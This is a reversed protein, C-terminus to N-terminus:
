QYTLVTYCPTGLVSDEIKCAAIGPADEPDTDIMQRGYVLPPHHRHIQFTALIINLCVSLHKLHIILLFM